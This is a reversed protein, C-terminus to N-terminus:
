YSVGMLAQVLSALKLVATILYEKAEENTSEMDSLLAATNLHTESGENNLRTNTYPITIYRWWKLQSAVEDYRNLHILSSKKEKGYANDGRRGQRNSSSQYTRSTRRRSSGTPIKARCPCFSLTTLVEKKSEKM